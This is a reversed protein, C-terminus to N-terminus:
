HWKENISPSETGLLLTHAQCAEASLNDGPVVGMGQPSASWGAPLFSKHELSLCQPGPLDTGLPSTGLDAQQLGPGGGGRGEWAGASEAPDGGLLKLLTLLNLSSNTNHRM